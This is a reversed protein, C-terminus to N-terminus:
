SLVVKAASPGIERVLTSWAPRSIPLFAVRRSSSRIVSRALGDTWTLSEGVSTARRVM